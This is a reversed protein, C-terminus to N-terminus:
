PPAGICLCFSSSVAACAPFFRPAVVPVTTTAVGPRQAAQQLMGPSPDVVVVDQVLGAAAHILSAFCGTGGGIDVLKHEPRLRLRALVHEKQWTQYHGTYFFATHYASNVKAYHDSEDDHLDAARSGEAPTVTTPKDAAPASAAGTRPPPTRPEAM